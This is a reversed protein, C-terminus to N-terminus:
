FIRIVFFMFVFIISVALVIGWIMWKTKRSQKSYLELRAREKGLRTINNDLAQDADNLLGSNQEDTLTQHIAMANHRLQQMLMSLGTEMEERQARDNQLAAEIQAAENRSSTDQSEPIRSSQNHVQNSSSISNSTNNSNIDNGPSIDKGTRRSQCCEVLCAKKGSTRSVLKWLITLDVSGTRHRKRPRAKPLDHTLESNRYSTRRSPLEFELSNSSIDELIETPIAMRAQQLAKTHSPHSTASGDVASVLAEIQIGYEKLIKLDTRGSTSLEMELDVLMNKLAKINMLYKSRELGQLSTDADNVRANCKTMLRRMNIELASPSSSTM